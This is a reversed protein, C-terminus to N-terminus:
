VVEFPSSGDPYKWSFLAVFRRRIEDGEDSEERGEKSGDPLFTWTESDNIVSRVPGILLHQWAAPLSDRFAEVDPVPIDDMAGRMAYGQAVVIVADHLIHSM